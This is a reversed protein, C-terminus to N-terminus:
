HDSRTKSATTSVIDSRTYPSDAPDCITATTPLHGNTSTDSYKQTSYISHTKEYTETRQLPRLIKM